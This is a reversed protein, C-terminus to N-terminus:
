SLQVVVGDGTVRGKEDQPRKRKIDEIQSTVEILNEEFSSYPDFTKYGICYRVKEPLNNNIEDIVRKAGIDNTNLMVLLFEDGSWRCGLDSERTVYKLSNAASVLVKDAGDHGFQENLQKLGILDFAVITYENFVGERKLNNTIAAFQKPLGRQNLMKTLSDTNALSLMMKYTDKALSKRRDDKNEM